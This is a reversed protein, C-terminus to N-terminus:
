PVQKRIQQAYQELFLIQIPTEIAAKEVTRVRNIAKTADDGQYILYAALLTGTRGIGAQCHVAVPRHSTIQGNVFRIFKGVQEITPAGGDPVPLCLFSFGASEYVSADSPINLLSVVARVGAAHLTPLEDNFATLPGGGAMRRESHIFPMPMGALAGPLVWWLLNQKSYKGLECDAAGVQYGMWYGKNWSDADEPDVCEPPPAPASPPSPIHPPYPLGASARDNAGRRFGLSFFLNKRVRNQNEPMTYAFGLVGYLLLRRGISLLRLWHADVLTDIAERFFNIYNESYKLTRSTLIILLM